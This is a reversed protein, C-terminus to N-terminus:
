DAEPEPQEGYLEATEARPDDDPVVVFETWGNRKPDYVKGGEPTMWPQYHGNYNERWRSQSIWRRALVEVAM